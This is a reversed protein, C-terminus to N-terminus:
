LVVADIVVGGCVVNMNCYSMWKPWVNRGRYGLISRLLLGLCAHCPCRPDADPSVHVEAQILLAIPGPRDIGSMKKKELPSPVSAIRKFGPALM